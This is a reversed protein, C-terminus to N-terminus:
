RSAIVRSIDDAAALLPRRLRAPDFGGTRGTVGIMGILKGGPDRVGTAVCSYGLVSEDQEMAVNQNRVRHLVESLQHWTAPTRCTLRALPRKRVRELLEPRDALVIRGAASALFLDSRVASPWRRRRLDEARNSGFASDLLVFSADSLASFWVVERTRAFIDQVHPTAADRLGHQEAARVGLALLHRGLRYGDDIRELMGRIVLDGAIRRVTPKPIGTARTLAALTAHEGLAAVADLLAVVRGTVTRKEAGDDRKEV